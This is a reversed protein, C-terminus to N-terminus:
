TKLEVLFEEFEDIWHDIKNGKDEINQEWEKFDDCEKINFDLEERMKAGTYRIESLIKYIDNLQKLEDSGKTLPIWNNEQGLSYVEDLLKTYADLFDCPHNLNDINIDLKNIKDDNKNDGCSFMLPVCLLLLLLKKM